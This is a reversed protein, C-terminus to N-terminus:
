KKLVRYSVQQQGETNTQGQQVNQQQSQQQQTTQQAQQQQTIATINGGTSSVASQMSVAVLPTGGTAQIRVPSGSQRVAMSVQGQLAATVQSLLAQQSSAVKITGALAGALTSQVTVQPRIGSALAQAASTATVVQIKQTLGHTQGPIVSTTARAVGPKALVVHQTGSQGATTGLQAANAGQVRMVQHLQQVTMTTAMSKPTQVLLAKNTVQTLQAVKTHGSLKRQALLHPHLQLQRIQQTTAATAKVGQTLAAKVQGGPGLTVGSVPITVASTGGPTSVAKVLTAVQSTGAQQLQVGAPAFIQAHVQQGGAGQQAAAVALAKQQQQLQQCKILAAVESETVARAITQKGVGSNAAAAQKLFHARQAQTMQAQQISVTQPSVSTTTISTPTKVVTTGAVVTTGVNSGANQQQQQQQLLAANQLQRLQQQKLIQQRYLQLHAQNVVKGGATVATGTAIGKATVRSVTQGAVILRQAQLQGITSSTIGGITVVNTGQVLSSSIRQARLASAVSSPSQVGQSVAVSLAVQPVPSQSSPGPSQSHPIQITTPATQQVVATAAQQQAAPVQQSTKAALLGLSSAKKEKAIREARRTAVDIPNSPMDYSVGLQTLIATHKTTKVLQNGITPKITPQRKNSITKITDFRQVMTSIFSQNNDQTYIQSTRLPRNGKTQQPNKYVSKTKKQKKPIPDFQIKGEERPVIILEYRNKCQKPSRYIRSTNNVFDAVLDWNPTHGPSLVMLNLPLGQYVQVAQLLAMDEHIMWELVGDPEPQPKSTSPLKLGPIPIPPRIIGRYKQQKFDRRMKLLAPSPRDFLSRPAYVSEEKRHQKMPRRSETLGAENRSRKPEKKIYVPPLQAESMVVSEYLFNMSHDIYVDNDNQPPTPPCWMPMEENGIDSIWIQNVADERSFTLLDDEERLLQKRAEEEKRLSALRNAEWELKQAEIEAEAAALQQASWAADNEEVFRMAYLEIPSLQKILNQVEQEAKSLEPEPAVNEVAATSETVTREEELPISEDFEALEAVAEAKATRAAQVDQEDECAALANELAGMASRDEVPSPPSQNDLQKQLREKREKERDVVEAMRTSADENTNVNFLDQITSSKFYATTFNGGEIALDGLMRKQNAKKLINEEITMESVLRYIHVDRTQGIRHCRDQAQADMTPNWDSDYFIVTDAGTLNVGVGGSRTSLIFAFIRKDGNFREMLVQRQDVKTTGDLRLYIHGHYNLFSELVDLMRTMQTFILVRHGETKLKRLLKDLTQLKGCDFQILRPDPFQTAMNRAITHLPACPGSLHHRLYYEMRQEEWLKGPPPHSVHVKPIPAQVAPVFFVYRDLIEKLEHIYDEVSHISQRLTKSHHWSFGKERELAVRRCYSYGRATWPTTDRYAPHEDYINENTTFVNCANRLDEGYLPFASCREENVRALISLKTERAKRKRREIIADYFPSKPEESKSANKIAQLEAQRQNSSIQTLLQNVLTANLPQSITVSPTSPTSKDPSATSNHNTEVPQVQQPQQQFQPISTAVTPIFVTRTNMNTNIVRGASSVNAVIPSKSLVALRQGSSTMVTQAQQTTTNQLTQTKNLATTTAASPRANIVTNNPLPKTEKPEGLKINIKIQGKPCPPPPEPASDIEEILKRPLSLQKIRHADVATMSEELKALLFHRSFLDISNLPDYDLLGYVLSATNFVIGEMQFPSVTPRVEFLNPHNCVKRLQMLVNIVSLLNGTALTERTKARSMFDDYLYRQRKSLRCLVVHEYKKPMQKEVESKLRRLLFPRLVKHLRKIISENYESNGEIMGTVPNSFWEKFERHSQFVNPMLFHMLSWLEMLNNQLPTGTLLLRQQTQFNLLLQWRQSKFNKINQAEDLILYKWKKRRFSQHDQIVLKYSTICIHFANPKTWGTRKLKREKQTGYYTLIKFGPCWKKCEMEWNLMVSTPVIILHPGWDEKECALHALLAITQITKGLGMEDALIGNLKRDFMTVLWDLGIHQYERLTHKLLFPIPTVVSTSSLTNGKPQISEAIAAVDNFLNDKNEAKDGDEKSTDDLLSKLGLNDKSDEESESESHDLESDSGGDSDASNDEKESNNDSDVDDSDVEEDDESESEDQVDMSNEEPPPMSSYMKKLEEIDMEAMKNLEDLEKKHDQEGEAKEQELITDELDSEDNESDMTFEEDGKRDANDKNSESESENDSPLEKNRNELYDAPLESILTDLDMESERQLAALEQAEDTAEAEALAITEEDDDSSQNGPNFEDDSGHGSPSPIRSSTASEPVTNSDNPVGSKNMGEALLQSYKETQDVIFSLHQDLAQKRKEELRTQQKYEVVKEINQWFQRVERSMYAAIRRLQLEQAKEAKQAAVAKDQFYKQVMRACKKAAAKKWKREQAFDASLWVMEELLYDWHVKARHPEQVRPLRKETWLGDRQLESIRQMVYAEQKAKEVIQEQNGSSSVAKNKNSPTTNQAPSTSPINTSSSTRKEAQSVTNTSATRPVNPNTQGGPPIDPVIPTGGQQSLQVVQAPLTTSVAVPTLGVGTMKIEVNPQPNPKPVQQQPQQQVNPTPTAAVVTGEYNDEESTDLRHMHKFQLFNQSPQKKRWLAFDQDDGGIQLFFYEALHEDYSEKVSQLRLQRHELIRKRLGSTENENLTAESTGDNLKLRKKAPSINPSSTPTSTPTVFVGTSSTQTRLGPSVTNGVVLPNQRPKTLANVISQHTAAPSSSNRNTALALVGSRTPSMNVIRTVGGQNLVPNATVISTIQSLPPVPQTQSNSLVYQGGAVQTLRVAGTRAVPPVRPPPAGGGTGPESM